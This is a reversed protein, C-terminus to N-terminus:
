RVRRSSLYRIPTDAQPPWDPPTPEDPDVGSLSSTWSAIGQGDGIRNAGPKPQPDYGYRYDDFPSPPQSAAIGHAYGQAINDANQRSLWHPGNTDINAPEFHAYPRIAQVVKANIGNV